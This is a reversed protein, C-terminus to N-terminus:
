NIVLIKNCCYMLNLCFFYDNVFILFIGPINLDRRKKYLIDDSLLRWTSEWVIDPKSMTHMMLLSVFLRRLQFASATESGEKIGDLFERDDALLGMEYCAKHFSGKVIGNVTKISEYSTCGRQVTLLIRMYYLEGVGPPIYQLRGISYGKKRPLWMRDDRHYTFKTPFEAYTLSRGEPFKRNAEFWALFMADVEKNKRVVDTIPDYDHFCVFQENELHFKLKFVPTWKHHIDFKFIRWVAECPSVYRCDYYQKIEDVM